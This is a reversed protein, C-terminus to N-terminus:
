DRSKTALDTAQSTITGERDVLIVNGVRSIMINGPSAPDAVSPSITSIVAERAVAKEVGARMKQVADAVTGVCAQSTCCVVCLRLVLM